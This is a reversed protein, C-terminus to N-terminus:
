GQIGEVLLLVGFVAFTAAAVLRVVREPLRSGLLTAVVIALGSAATMGASAGLWTPVAAQSGALATTAIMSKDGLEAVLFALTVGLVVSGGRLGTSEDDDDDDDDGWLTWAGFGLFLLGAGISIARQPLATGLAAGVLTAIGLMVVAAVAVGVLVPGPRYRAGLAIALLMTKDGLEVLLLLSFAAVLDEM